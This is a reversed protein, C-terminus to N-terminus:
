GALFELCIPPAARNKQLNDCVGTLAARIHQLCQAQANDANWQRLKTDLQKLRAVNRNYLPDESKGLESILFVTTQEIADARGPDMDVLGTVLNVGWQFRTATGTASEHARELWHLAEDPRGAKRAATSLKDMFYFPYGSIDLEPVLIAIVEDLLGAETLTNAAANIAAHREYGEASAAVRHAQDRALTLVQEPLTAQADIARLLRVRGRIVYTQESLSLRSDAELEDLAALWATELRRRHPSGAPGLGTVIEAPHNLVLDLNALRTGSHGLIAVVERALDAQDARSLPGAALMSRIKQLTLRSREEPMNEPCARAMASYARVPDHRGMVRGQDQDWNYCALLRCEDQGLLANRNAALRTLLRTVPTAIALAAELAGIYQELDLSGGLRTIQEGDRGFLVMTPYASVGFREGLAQAGDDDGHLMVPLYLRARDVFAQQSFIDAKVRACDPCWDASWFLLVPRHELGARAFAQDIDGHHWDIGPGTSSINM